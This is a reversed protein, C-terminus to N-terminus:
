QGQQEIRDGAHAVDIEDGGDDQACHKKPEREPEEPRGRRLRRHAKERVRDGVDRQQEARHRDIREHPRGMLGQSLKLAGVVGTYHGFGIWDGESSAAGHGLRESRPAPSTMADIATVSDGGSTTVVSRATGTRVWDVPSAFSRPDPSWLTMPRAKM